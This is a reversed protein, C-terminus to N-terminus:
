GPNDCHQLHYLLGLCNFLGREYENKPPRKMLSWSEMDEKEDILRIKINECLSTIHRMRVDTEFNCVTWYSGTKDLRESEIQFDIFDNISKGQWEHSNPWNAKFIEILKEKIEITLM